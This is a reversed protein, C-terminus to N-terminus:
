LISTDKDSTVVRFNAMIQKCIINGQLRKRFGEHASIVAFDIISPNEQKLCKCQNFNASLTLVPGKTIM